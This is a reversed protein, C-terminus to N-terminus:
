GGASLATSACKSVFSLIFVLFLGVSFLAIYAAIPPLTLIGPLLPWNFVFFAIVACSLQFVPEAGIKFLSKM